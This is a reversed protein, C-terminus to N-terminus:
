GETTYTHNSAVTAAAATATAAAAAAAPRLTRKSPLESSSISSAFTLAM